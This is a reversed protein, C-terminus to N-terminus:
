RVRCIYVYVNNDKLLLFYHDGKGLKVEWVSRVNPIQKYEVLDSFVHIFWGEYVGVWNICKDFKGVYTLGARVAESLYKTFENSPHIYYKPDEKVVKIIGIETVIPKLKIEPRPVYEALYKVIYKGDKEVIMGALKLSLLIDEIDTIDYNLKVLREKLENLTPYIGETNLEEIVAYVVRENIRKMVNEIVEKAKSERKIYSTLTRQRALRAVTAVTEIVDIRKAPSIKPITRAIEDAVKKAEEPDVGERILFNYVLDYAKAGDLEPKSRIKEIEARIDWPLGYIVEPKKEISKLYDMVSEVVEETVKRRYGKERIMSELKRLCEGEVLDSCYELLLSELKEIDYVDPIGLVESPDEVDYVELLQDLWRAWKNLWNTKAIGRLTEIIEKIPRERRVAM